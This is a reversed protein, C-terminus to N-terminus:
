YLRAMNIRAATVDLSGTSDQYVQASIVDNVALVAVTVVTLISVADAGPPLQNGAIVSGNLTIQNKRVGTANDTWAVMVSISWTGARTIKFDGAVGDNIGNGTGASWTTFKTPTSDAITQAGSSTASYCQQSLLTLKIGNINGNGDRAVIADNTALDTATTASNAVKGASTIQALSSDTITGSSSLLKSGDTFVVTSASLNPLKIDTTVLTKLKVEHAVLAM